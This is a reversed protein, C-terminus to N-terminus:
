YAGGALNVLEHYVTDAIEAKDAATLVYADGQTGQPGVEGAKVKRAAVMDPDLLTEVVGEHENDIIQKTQTATLGCCEIKLM